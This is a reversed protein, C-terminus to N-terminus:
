DARPIGRGPGLAAGGWSAGDSVPFPDRHSNTEEPHEAQQDRRGGRAGARGGGDVDVGLRKAGDLLEPDLEVGVTVAIEVRGFAGPEFLVHGFAVALLARLDQVCDQRGGVRVAVPSHGLGLPLRQGTFRALGGRLFCVTMTAIDSPTFSAVSM